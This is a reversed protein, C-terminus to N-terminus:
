TEQKYTGKELQAIIGDVNKIITTCIKVEGNHEVTYRFMTSTGHLTKGDLVFYEGKSFIDLIKKALKKQDTQTLLNDIDNFQKSFRALLVCAEADSVLKNSGSSDIIIDVNSENDHALRQGEAAAKAIKQKNEANVRDDEEKTATTNGKLTGNSQQGDNSDNNTKDDNEETVEDATIVQRTTDNDVNAAADDNSGNNSTTQNVGGIRDEDKLVVITRIDQAIFSYQEKIDPPSGAVSASLVTRCSQIACGLIMVHVPNGAGTKEGFIIDIDFTQPWINSHHGRERTGGTTGRFSPEVSDDLKPVNYSVMGSVATVNAKDAAELISFLYNPSTFNITFSGVIIRNGRAVEDYTYSNYGFLPMVQQQIAWDIDHVDEVYENGFYVEADIVSYYRKVYASDVALGESTKTRHYEINTDTWMPRRDLLRPDQENKTTEAAAEKFSNNDPETLIYKGDPQQSATKTTDDSPLTETSDEEVTDNENSSDDTDDEDYRTLYAIRKSVMAKIYTQDSLALLTRAAVMSDDDIGHHLIEKWHQYDTKSIGYTKDDSYFREDIETSLDGLDETFNWKDICLATLKDKAIKVTDVDEATELVNLWYAIDDDYITAIAM